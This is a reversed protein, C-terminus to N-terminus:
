EQSVYTMGSKNDFHTGIVAAVKYSAPQLDRDTAMVDMWDMRLHKPILIIEGTKTGVESLKKRQNM